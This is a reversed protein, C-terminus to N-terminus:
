SKNRVSAKKEVTVPFSEEFLPNRAADFVFVTATNYQDPDSASITIFKVTKFRSISFYQGRKHGAPKGDLLKITPLTLWSDPRITKNGLVVATYGSIPDSGSGIHKLKFQARFTQSDAEYTVKLDEVAIESPLGDGPVPVSATSNEKEPVGTMEAAPLKNEAAPAVVQPKDGNSDAKALAQGPPEARSEAEAPLLRKLDSEAMVLRAMLIDKENRLEGAQHRVRQLSDAQQRNQREGQRYLYYLGGAALMASLLLFVWLFVIGKFWRISVIKGHDGVAMFTWRTPKRTPKPLYAAALEKELNRQIDEM